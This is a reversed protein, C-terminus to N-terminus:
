GFALRTPPSARTATLQALAAHTEPDAPIFTTLRTTVTRSLWLQTHTFQLLGLQPHLYAKHRSEPHAIEHRQWREAFEPSAQQLRNLLWRWGPDDMHESYAARFQAVVRDATAPWDVLTRRWAPHNFTLWVVNRDEIPLADLDSVLLRYSTNYALLDCRASQVNAPFPELQHLLAQVQPPVAAVVPEGPGAPDVAGALSFLHRREYPDLLLAQAVADLVAPSAQIDRAQELWAYWSVGVGALQAVEERRLGPTRRRGGNPIGVQDPTIRERRSRLFRGLEVRRLARDSRPAGSM